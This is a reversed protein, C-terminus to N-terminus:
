PRALSSAEASLAHRGGSVMPEESLSGSLSGAHSHGGLYGALQSIETHVSRLSGPLDM